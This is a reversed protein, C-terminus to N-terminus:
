FSFICLCPKKISIYSVFDLFIDKTFFICLNNQCFLLIGEQMFSSHLSKVLLCNLICNEKIMIKFIINIVPVSLEGMM